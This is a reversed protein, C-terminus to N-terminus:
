RVAFLRQLPKPVKPVTLHAGDPKGLNKVSLPENLSDIISLPRMRIVAGEGTDDFEEVSVLGGNGSVAEVVDGWSDETAYMM